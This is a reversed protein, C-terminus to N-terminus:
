SLSLFSYWHKPNSRVQQMAYETDKIEAVLAAAASRDDSAIRFRVALPEPPLGVLVTTTAYPAGSGMSCYAFDKLLLHRQKLHKEVERLRCHGARQERPLPGQKTFAATFSHPVNQLVIDLSANPGDAGSAQVALFACPQCCHLM